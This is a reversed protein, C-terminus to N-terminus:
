DYLFNYYTKSGRCVLFSYGCLQRSLSPTLEFGPQQFPNVTKEGATQGPNLGFAGARFAM